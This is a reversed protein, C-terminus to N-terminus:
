LLLRGRLHGPRPGAEAGENGGCRGARSGGGSAGGVVGWDEEVRHGGQHAGGLAARGEYEIAQPSSETGELHGRPTSTDQLLLIEIGATSGGGGRAPSM